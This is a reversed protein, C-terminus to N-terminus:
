RDELLAASRALVDELGQAFRAQRADRAQHLAQLAAQRAQLVQQLEAGIGARLRAAEDRRLAPVQALAQALRAQLAPVGSREVLVPMAHALGQGHRMSSVPWPVLWPVQAGIARMVGDLQAPDALQDVQTVVLLTCRGSGADSARLTDLLAGEAADLEGETAAHVFLCVDAEVEMARRAHADDGGAVDAELGPADLWRVGQQVHADLAVTQRHDAVAFVEHGLLTNLLRSKGHNYKGAVTVTPPVTGAELVGLRALDTARHPLLALVQADATARPDSM